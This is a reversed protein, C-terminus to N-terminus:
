ALRVPRDETIHTPPVTHLDQTNRQTSFQYHHFHCRRVLGWSFVRIQGEQEDEPTMLTKKRGNNTTTYNDKGGEIAKNNNKAEVRAATNRGLSKPTNEKTKKTKEKNKRQEINPEKRRTIFIV